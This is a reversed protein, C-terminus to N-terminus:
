LEILRAKLDDWVISRAMAYTPALYLVKKNPFRAAKCLERVCLHTKGFRRGAVLVKFRSKDNAVASQPITLKM